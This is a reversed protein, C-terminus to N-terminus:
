IIQNALLFCSVDSVRSAHVQEGNFFAGHGTKATFLENLMPNYVIGLVLQKNIALGVSICAQPIKKMFNTTGDIPDIIWTPDDTLFAEVKSEAQEEEGIFKHSPYEESIGNIIIDEIKKDYESVIDYFASKTKFKTQKSLFGENMITGCKLILNQILKFYQEIELDGTVSATSM